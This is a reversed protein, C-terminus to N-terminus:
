NSGLKDIQRRLWRKMADLTIELRAAVEEVSLSLEGASTLRRSRRKKSKFQDEEGHFEIWARAIMSGVDEARARTPFTREQSPMILLHRWKRDEYQLEVWPKWRSTNDANAIGQVDVTRRRYAFIRWPSKSRQRARRARHSADGEASRRTTFHAWRQEEVVDRIEAQLTRDLGGKVMRFAGHKTRAPWVSSKSM